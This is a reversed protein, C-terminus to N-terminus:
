PCRRRTTTTGGTISRMGHPATGATALRSRRATSASRSAAGGAGSNNSIALAFREDQAAAWLATKGLRSHGHVAVRQGDLERDSQIYDLGRSLGWAWIGISGWGDGRRNNVSGSRFLAGVSEEMGDDRDPCLDGYYVTATAYGRSVVTEIQWRSAHSGRTAETARNKVTHQAPSERMWAPSFSIGSDANVCLNGFYWDPSAPWPGGSRETSLDPHM